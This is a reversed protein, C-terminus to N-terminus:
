KINLNNIRKAASALIQKKFSIPDPYSDKKNEFDTLQSVLDDLIDVYDRFGIKYFYEAGMEVYPNNNEKYLYAIVGEDFLANICNVILEGRNVASTIPKSEATGNFIEDMTKGLAQAIKSLSQLGISRKGNEFASIQTTSIGTKEYLEFQTMNALERANKIRKGLEILEKDEKM